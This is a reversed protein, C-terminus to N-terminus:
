YIKTYLAVSHAILSPSNPHYPDITASKQRWWQGHIATLQQANIYSNHEYISPKFYIWKYVYYKPRSLLNLRVDPNLVFIYGAYRQLVLTGHLVDRSHAIQTSNPIFNFSIRYRKKWKTFDPLHVSIAGIFLYQFWM